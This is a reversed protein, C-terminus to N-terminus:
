DDENWREGAYTPDFWAPPQDTDPYRERIEDMRPQVREVYEAYHHECRPYTLGSGSLAYYESVDGQCAGTHSDLCDM